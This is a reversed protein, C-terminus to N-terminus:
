FGLGFGAQRLTGTLKVNPGLVFEAGLLELVEDRGSKDDGLIWNQACRVAAKADFYKATWREVEARLREIQANQARLCAALSDQESFSLGEREEIQLAFKLAEAIGNM